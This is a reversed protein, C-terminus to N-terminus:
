YRANKSQGPKPMKEEDKDTLNEDATNNNHKKDKM